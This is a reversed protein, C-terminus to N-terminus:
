LDVDDSLWPLKEELEPGHELIMTPVSTKRIMGDILLSNHLFVRTLPSSRGINKILIFM